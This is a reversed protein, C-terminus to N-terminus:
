QGDLPGELYPVLFIGYHWTRQASEDISYHHM